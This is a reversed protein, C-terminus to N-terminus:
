LRILYTSEMHLGDDSFKSATKVAHCLEEASYTNNLVVAACGIRGAGMFTEVYEFRNGAMIGVADGYKMGLAILGRSVLKSRESLQRYSLRASQWPVVVADRDKHQAAQEEILVSLTKNWLSPKTPGSVISPAHGGTPLSAM